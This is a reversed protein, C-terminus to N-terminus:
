RAMLRACSLAEAHMLLPVIQARQVQDTTFPYVLLISDVPGKHSAVYGQLVRLVRDLDSPLDRTLTPAAFPLAALIFYAYHGLDSHEETDAASALLLDFLAILGAPPVVHANVLEAVFRILLKADLVSRENLAQQLREGVNAVVEAGFDTNKANVLGVLTGYVPGKVPLQTVSRGVSDSTLPAERSPALFSPRGAGGM